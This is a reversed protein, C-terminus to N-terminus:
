ATPSPHRNPPRHEVCARCVAILQDAYRSFTFLEVRRDGSSILRQRITPRTVEVMADALAKPNPDVLIGADGVTEEYVTRRVAVIPTAAAMAEVISMGFSELESTAVLAAAGGYWGPMQGPPVVGLFQLRDGVGVEQAINRLRSVEASPAAGAIVLRHPLPSRALGRIALDFNRHPWVTGVALFYPQASSPKNRTNSRFFEIDLPPYIVHISDRLVPATRELERAMTSSVAIVANSRFAILSRMSRRYVARARGGARNPYAIFMNQVIALTPRLPFAPVYNNPYVVADVGHLGALAPVALHQFSIRSVRSKTPFVMVRDLGAIRGVTERMSPGVYALTRIDTRQGLATLVGTLYRGAGDTPGETAGLGEIALKLPRDSM